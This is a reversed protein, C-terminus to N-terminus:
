IYFINIYIYNNVFYGDVNNYFFGIIKNSFYSIVKNNKLINNYKKM